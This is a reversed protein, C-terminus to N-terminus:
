SRNRDLFTEIREKILSKLKNNNDDRSLTGDKYYTAVTRRIVGRKVSLAYGINFSDNGSDYNLVNVYVVDM